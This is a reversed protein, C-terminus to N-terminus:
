CDGNDLNYEVLITNDEDMTEPSQRSHCATVDDDAAAVPPATAVVPSAPVSPKVSPQVVQQSSRDAAAEADRQVAARPKFYWEAIM